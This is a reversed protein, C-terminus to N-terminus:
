VPEEMLEEMRAETLEIEGTDQLEQSEEPTLLNSRFTWGVYRYRYIPQGDEDVEGTDEYVDDKTRTPDRLIYHGPWGDDSGHRQVWRRKSEMIGWEHTDEVVVAGTDNIILLQM